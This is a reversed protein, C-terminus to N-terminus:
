VQHCRRHDTAPRPDAKGRGAQQLFRTKLVASEPIKLDAASDSKTTEEKHDLMYEVARQHARFFGRVTLIRRPMSATSSISAAPIEKGRSTAARRIRLEGKEVRDLNFPPV